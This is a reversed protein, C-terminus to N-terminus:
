KKVEYPDRGTRVLKYCDYNDKGFLEIAKKEDDVVDFCFSVFVEPAADWARSECKDFKKERIELEIDAMTALLTEYRQKWLANGPSM